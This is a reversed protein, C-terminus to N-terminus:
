EMGAARLRRLQDDTMSNQQRVMRILDLLGRDDTSRQQEVMWALQGKSLRHQRADAHAPATARRQPGREIQFKRERRVWLRWKAPWDDSLTHVSRHHDVFHSTMEDVDVDPVTQAAFARLEDTLPFPEPVETAVKRSGGVRSAAATAPANGRGGTQTNTLRNTLTKLKQLPARKMKQLSTAENKSAVEIKSAIVTAEIKSASVEIELATNLQYCVTEWKEATSAVIYHGDILTHLATSITADSKIGTGRKIQSYPLGKSDEQRGKTERIVYCLVKWANAPLTPMIVDFVANHIAVYNGQDTFPRVITM